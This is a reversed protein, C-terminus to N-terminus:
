LDTFMIYLSAFALGTCLLVKTFMTLLRAVTRRANCTVEHTLMALPFRQTSCALADSEWFSIFTSDGASDCDVTFILLGLPPM